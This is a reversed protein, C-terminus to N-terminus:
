SRKLFWVRAAGYDRTDLIEWGAPAIMEDSATEVVALSEPALQELIARVDRIRIPDSM